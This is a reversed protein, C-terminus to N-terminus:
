VVAGLLKRLGNFQRMLEVGMWEVGVGQECGDALSQLGRGVDRQVVQAPRKVGRNCALCLELQRRGSVNSANDAAMCRM